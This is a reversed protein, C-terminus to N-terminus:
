GVQHVGAPRPWDRPSDGDPDPVDVLRQLGFGAEPAPDEDPAPQERQFRAPVGGPLSHAM